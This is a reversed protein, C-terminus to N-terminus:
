SKSSFLASALLPLITNIIIPLFGGKQILLRKRSTTNGKQKLVKCITRKHKCIEEKTSVPIDVNQKVVNLTAECLSDIEDKSAGKLLNRRRSKDAVAYYQLFRKNRLIRKVM